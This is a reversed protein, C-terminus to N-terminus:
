ITARDGISTRSWEFDPSLPESFAASVNQLSAANAFAAGKYGTM